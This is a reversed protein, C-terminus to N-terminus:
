SNHEQTLLLVVAFIRSDPITDQKYHLGKWRVWSLCNSIYRSNIWFHIIYKILLAIAEALAIEEICTFNNEKIKKVDILFM